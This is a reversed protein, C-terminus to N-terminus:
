DIDGSGSGSGSGSGDGDDGGGLIGVGYCIGILLLLGVIALMIQIGVNDMLDIKGDESNMEDAWSNDNDYYEVCEMAQTSDEEDDDNNAGGENYQMGSFGEKTPSNMAKNIYDYDKENIIQAYDPDYTIVRSNPIKSGNKGKYPSDGSYSYFPIRDRVVDNLSWSKPNIVNKDNDYPIHPAIETFFPSGGEQQKKIPICIIINRDGDAAAGNKFKHTLVLEGVIEKDAPISEFNHLKPIYLRTSKLEIEKSDFSLENTGDTTIELYDKKNELICPTHESYKHKIVCKKNNKETKYHSYPIEAM